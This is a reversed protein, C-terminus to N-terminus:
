RHHDDHRRFERDLLDSYTRSSRRCAAERSRFHAMAVTTLRRLGRTSPTVCSPPRGQGDVNVVM